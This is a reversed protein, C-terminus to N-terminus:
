REGRLLGLVMLVTGVATIALYWQGARRIQGATLREVRAQGCWSRMLNVLARARDYELSEDPMTGTRYRQWGIYFAIPMGVCLAILDVLLRLDDPQM